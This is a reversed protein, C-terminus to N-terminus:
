SKAEAPAGHELVHQHLSKLGEKLAPDDLQSLVEMKVAGHVDEAIDRFETELDSQYIKM